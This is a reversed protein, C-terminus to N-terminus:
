KKAQEMAAAALAMCDQQAGGANKANDLQCRARTAFSAFAAKLSDFTYRDKKGVSEGRGQVEKLVAAIYVEGTSSNSIELEITGAHVDNKAMFEKGANTAGHAVVGIPTYSLFGRKKHQVELDVLAVKMYVVDPGAQEVVNYGGDKMVSVMGDRLFDALAKQDDPKLHKVKSNEGLSIVPQDVMIGNVTALNKDADPAIYLLDALGGEPAATLKGYASLFGSDQIGGEAQAYVTAAPLVMIAIIALPALLVTPANFKSINKNM